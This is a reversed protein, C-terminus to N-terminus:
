YFAWLKIRGDYKRGTDRCFKEWDDPHTTLVCVMRKETKITGDDNILIDRLEEVMKGSNRCWDMFDDKDKETIV